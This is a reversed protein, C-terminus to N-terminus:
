TKSGSLEQSTDFNIVPDPLTYKICFVTRSESFRIFIKVRISGPLPIWWVKPVPQPIKPGHRDPIQSIKVVWNYTTTRNQGQNLKIKRQKPYPLAHYHTLWPYFQVVVYANQLCSCILWPGNTRFATLALGPNFKLGPKKKERMDSNLNRM